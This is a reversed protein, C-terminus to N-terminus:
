LLDIVEKVANTIEEITYIKNIKVIEQDFFLGISEFESIVDFRSMYANIQNVKDMEIDFNVMKMADEQLKNFTDLKPKKPAAVYEKGKKSMKNIVSQRFQELDIPDKGQFDKGKAEKAFTVVFEAEEQAEIFASHGIPAMDASKNSSLYGKRVEVESSTLFVKNM